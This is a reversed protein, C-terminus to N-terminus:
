RKKRPAAILKLIRRAIEAALKGADEEFSMRVLVDDATRSLMINLGRDQNQRFDTRVVLVPKGAKHAYGAEFTTGSDGDPGDLLACVADARDIADLCERAIDPWHREDNYKDGVRFNQPLIVKAGPIAKTIAAALERNWRREILSFLPAALYIVPARKESSM